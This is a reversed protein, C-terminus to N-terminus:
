LFARDYGSKQLTSGGYGEVTVVWDLHCYFGLLSFISSFNAGISIFDVSCVVKKAHLKRQDGFFDNLLGM